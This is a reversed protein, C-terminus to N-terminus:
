RHRLRMFVADRRTTTLTGFDRRVSCFRALTLHSDGRLGTDLSGQPFQKSASLIPPLDLRSTGWLPYSSLYM